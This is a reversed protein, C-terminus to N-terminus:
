GTVNGSSPHPADSSVGVSCSCYGNSCDGTQTNTPQVWSSLTSPGASPFHSNTFCDATLSHNVCIDYYMRTQLFRDICPNLIDKLGSGLKSIALTTGNNSHAFMGTHIYAFQTGFGTWLATNWNPVVNPQNPRYNYAQDAYVFMADATGNMLYEMAADNGGVTPTILNFGSFPSGTCFNQVLQLGEATPAWGAVDVINVGSLSSMPNVVPLGDSGLRTLIGAPKNEDLIPNTFEMYRNRVGTTHTYTMCGHFVGNDLAPGIVNSGWCDAWAAQRTVMDIDCVSSLGMAVDHGFGGVEFDGTPPVKLFAYPPWDIDQALIIKPRMRGPMVGPIPPELPGSAGSGLSYSTTQELNSSCCSSAQYASRLDRCTSGQGLVPLSIAALM